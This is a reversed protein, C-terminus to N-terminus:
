IEDLLLDDILADTIEKFYVTYYTLLSGSLKSIIKPNKCIEKKENRKM